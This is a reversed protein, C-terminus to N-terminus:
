PLLGGSSGSVELREIRWLAAHGEIGIQGVRCGAVVVGECRKLLRGLRVANSPCAPHEAVVDHAEGATFADDAFAAAMLPLLAAAAQQDSARLARCSREGDLLAAECRRVRELLEGLQQLVTAEFATMTSRRVRLM